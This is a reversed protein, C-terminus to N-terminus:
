GNDKGGKKIHIELIPIANRVSLETEGREFEELYLTVAAADDFNYNFHASGFKCNDKGCHFRDQRMSNRNWGFPKKEIVSYYTKGFNKEVMVAYNESVGKVKMPKGWDNVKILDGNEITSLVEKTVETYTTYGKMGRREKKKPITLCKHPQGIRYHNGCEKCMYCAPIPERGM